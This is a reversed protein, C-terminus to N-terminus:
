KHWGQSTLIFYTLAGLAFVAIFRISWKGFKTAQEDLWERIADKVIQKMESKRFVELAEKVVEPTTTSTSDSLTM